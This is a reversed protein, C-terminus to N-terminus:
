NELLGDDKWKQMQSRLDSSIQGRPPMPSTADNIRAISRDIRDKVQNFTLLPFPAGNTLPDGHCGTCSNSMISKINADYTITTVVPAPDPDPDPLATVDFTSSSSCNFILAPVALSYIIKKFKM